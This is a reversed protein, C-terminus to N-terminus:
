ACEFCIFSQCSLNRAFDLGCIHKLSFTSCQNKNKSSYNGLFYSPIKLLKELHM